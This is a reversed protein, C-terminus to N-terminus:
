RPVKWTGARAAAALTGALEGHSNPVLGVTVRLHPARDVTSALVFGSGAAAGIGHSALNILAAQEDFVPLWLNIGDAGNLDGGEDAVGARLLGECVLRRRRAYERRARAVSAVAAADSLLDLLLHQLLRSTWGQGLLRREVLPELIAAPGGMAALRLDPGHSKSFSRIHVTREPLSAGISFLPSSAIDGASDDEVVVVEPAAALVTALKRARERTWSAGTPNHARPQLFVAAPRTALATALQDPMVGTRM